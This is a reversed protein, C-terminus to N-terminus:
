SCLDDWCSKVVLRSFLDSVVWQVKPIIRAILVGMHAVGHGKELGRCEETTQAIRIFIGGLVVLITWSFSEKLPKGGLILRVLMVTLHRALTEVTSIYQDQHPPKQVTQPPPQIM